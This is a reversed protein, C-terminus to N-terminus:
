CNKQILAVQNSSIYSFFETWMKNGYSIGAPTVFLELLIFGDLLMTRILLDNRWGVYSSLLIYEVNYIAFSISKFMYYRCLKRINRYNLIQILIYIIDPVPLTHKLICISLCCACLMLMDLCGKLGVEMFRFVFIYM